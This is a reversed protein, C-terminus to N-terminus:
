GTPSSDEGQQPAKRLLRPKKAFRQAKEESFGFTTEPLLRNLTKSVLRVYRGPLSVSIEEGDILKFYLVASQSFQLGFPLRETQQGYVWVIREPEQSILQILPHDEPTKVASFAYTYRFATVSIFLGILGALLSTKYFFGILSLGLLLLAVAAVLQWRTERILAKQLVQLGPHQLLQARKLIVRFTKFPNFM